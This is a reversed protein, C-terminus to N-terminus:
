ERCINLHVSWVCTARLYKLWEVQHEPSTLERERERLLRDLSHLDAERGRWGVDRRPICHM